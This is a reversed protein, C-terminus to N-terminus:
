RRARPSDIQASQEEPQQEAPKELERLREISEEVPPQVYGSGATWAGSGRHGRIMYSQNLSRIGYSFEKLEENVATAAMNLGVTAGMVGVTGLLVAEASLVAGAEDAWFASWISM